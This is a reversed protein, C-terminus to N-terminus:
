FGTLRCHIKRDQMKWEQMKWGAIQDALKWDQMKLRGARDPSTNWYFALVHTDFQWQQRYSSHSWNCQHVLENSIATESVTLKQGIEL